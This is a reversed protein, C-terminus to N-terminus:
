SISQSGGSAFSVSTCLTQRCSVQLRSATRAALQPNALMLPSGVPSHQQQQQQVALQAKMGALEAEQRQQQLARSEADLRRENGSVADERARLENALVQLCLVVGLNGRCAHNKFSKNRSSKGHPELVLRVYASIALVAGPLSSSDSSSVRDTYM